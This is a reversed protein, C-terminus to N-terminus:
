AFLEDMIELLGNSVKNSADGQSGQLMIKRLEEREVSKYEQDQIYMSIFDILENKDKAISTAKSDVIPRYHVFDYFRKVSKSPPKDAFDFAINIVPKDIAIADLSMTSATNVTIDSFYITDRLNEIFDKHAVRENSGEGDDIGPVQFYVNELKLDKYRELTDMQHLRVILQANLNKLNESLFIVIDRDEPSILKHNTAFLVTKKTTLLKCKNFFSEKSIKPKDKYIDFQPVGTVKIKDIDYNYIELLEKQMIRNWVFAFDTEYPLFGKGTLNDFSKVMSVTPIKRAKAEMLYDYEDSAVLHTSFVIDPNYKSFQLEIEKQPFYVYKLLSELLNYIRKSKPFPYKLYNLSKDKLNQSLPNEELTTLSYNQNLAYFRRRLILLLLSSLTFTKKKFFDVYKIREHIFYSGYKKPNTVCCIIDHDSNDLINKVIHTSLVNRITM